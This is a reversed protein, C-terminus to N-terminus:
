GMDEEEALGDCSAPLVLKSGRGVRIIHVAVIATGTSAHTRVPDKRHRKVLLFSM